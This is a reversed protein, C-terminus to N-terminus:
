QGTYGIKVIWDRFAPSAGSVPIMHTRVGKQGDKSFILGVIHHSVPDLQQEPSTVAGTRFDTIDNVSNWLSKFTEETMTLSQTKKQGKDDLTWTAGVKGDFLTLTGHHFVGSSEHAYDIVLIDKAPTAPPPTTAQRGCGFLSALFAM